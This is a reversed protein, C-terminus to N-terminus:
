TYWFSRIAHHRTTTDSMDTHATRLCGAGGSGPGGGSDSDSGSVGSGGGSGIADIEM